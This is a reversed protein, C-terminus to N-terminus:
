NLTWDVEREKLETITETIVPDLFEVQFDFSPDELLEGIKKGKDRSLHRLRNLMFFTMDPILSFYLFARHISPCEWYECYNRMDDFWEIVREATVGKPLEIFRRYTLNPIRDLTLEFVGSDMLNPKQSWPGTLRNSKESGAM